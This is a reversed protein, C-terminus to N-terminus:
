VVESRADLRTGIGSLSIVVLALDDWGRREAVFATWRNLDHGPVNREVHDVPGRVRFHRLVGSSDIEADSQTVYVTEHEEDYHHHYGEADRGVYTYTSGTGELVIDDPTGTTSSKSM